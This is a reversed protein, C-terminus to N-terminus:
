RPSPNGLRGWLTRFAREATAPVVGNGLLRLEDTRSDLSNYLLAYDVGCSAGDSNRGLSPQTDTSKPTVRPPEWAHPAAGRGAPWAERRTLKVRPHLEPQITHVLNSSVRERGSDSLDARVGLIYIRKRQHTAGVEVASFVGATTWYGLRELERLVHLLVPTNQPDSWDDGKLNSSLIGEVNELFVLPPGGLERLGRVIHPWLHRPDEDGAKRGAQSFPQCPFGGSVLDVKGRFEGWPFTKLDTWVPANDLRGAEIKSVLNACAFDGIESYAVTRLNRIARKLGLDIGGYGACLSIHTLDETHAM